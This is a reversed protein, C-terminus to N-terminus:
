RYTKPADYKKVFGYAQKDPRKGAAVILVFALGLMVIPQAM